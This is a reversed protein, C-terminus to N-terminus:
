KGSTKPATTKKLGGGKVVQKPPPPKYYPSPRPAAPGILKSWARSVQAARTGPLMSTPARAKPGPAGPGKLVDEPVAHPLNPFIFGVINRFVEQAFAIGRAFAVNGGGAIMRVPGLEEATM